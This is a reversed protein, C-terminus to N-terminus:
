QATNANGGIYANLSQEQEAQMKEIEAQVDPIFSALGLRTEDSVLGKLKLQTDAEYTLDIPLNRTFKMELDEPIINIKRKAFASFIIRFQELSAKKFKVEKIIADNEMSVLKWKRAEGSSANAFGDDRMDISKSFKYINDNLTKKHNEILNTAGELNKTIFKIDSGDPVHFAGTQRAKTVTEVTPANGGYFGLYALRFEELENQIDSLTKDYADIDSAVKEFDGKLIDNNMFRVVPVRNFLHPQPNVEEDADLAYEKDDGEIYYTVNENDYWEVRTRIKVKGDAGVTELPYYIMAYQLEDLIQDYIFITEWPNLNMLTEQGLKNIYCLRAGYGCIQAYRATKTDLDFVSNRQLFSNLEATINEGYKDSPLSYKIPNGWIYGNKSDVIDGRYDNALKNNIKNTDTFQRTTIPVEGSYEKFLRLTKNHLDSHDAILDKIIKSTIQGAQQEILKIVQKSNM